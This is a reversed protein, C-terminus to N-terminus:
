MSQPAAGVKFRNCLPGLYGVLAITGEELDIEADEKVPIYQWSKILPPGPSAFVLRWTGDLTAPFGALCM